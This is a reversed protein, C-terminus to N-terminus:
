VSTVDRTHGRFIRQGGAFLTALHRYEWGRFDWRTAELHKWAAEANNAEWERQALALERAYVLREARDHEREARDREETAKQSAAEAQGKLQEAIERLGKQTLQALEAQGRQQEAETQATRAEGARRVAEIGFALAAGIGLLLVVVLAVSLNRTR